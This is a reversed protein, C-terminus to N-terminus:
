RSHKVLTRTQWSSDGRIGANGRKTEEKVRLGHIEERVYTVKKVSLCERCFFNLCIETYM